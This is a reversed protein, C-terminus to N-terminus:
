EEVQHVLLHQITLLAQPNKKKKKQCKLCVITKSDIMCLHPFANLNLKRVILVTQQKINCGVQGPKYTFFVEEIIWLSLSQHTVLWQLRLMTVTTM